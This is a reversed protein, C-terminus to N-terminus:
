GEVAVKKWRWAARLSKWAQQGQPTNDGVASASRIVVWLSSLMLGALTGAMVILARSPKSKADPPVAIDIQQLVPGDKAEDLKAMEFQRVIGGLLAEQLKFERQARVFDLATEPIKGVPMRTISFGGNPASATDANSEIRALESRLALMESSLRVVEPNQETASTRLVKMQVERAAIQTRLAAAGSILAEAQKDLVIVGSAEQLKRFNQEAEILREKTERLQEEFFVRRQKAEGVALRSLLETLAKFHANAFKAAFEPEKDDVEVTIVGSKKDSSVRVYATITKRLRTFGKVGYRDQLQFQDDLVKIVSDSKLLAVYLEDPTKAGASGALGGLQSLAALAAASGGQQQSGPPLMTSSATFQPPLLLAVALALLLAAGTTIAILRKGQGLWTLIELLGPGSDEDELEPRSIDQPTLTSM